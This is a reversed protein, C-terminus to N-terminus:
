KLRQNLHKVLSRMVKTTAHDSGATFPTLENLLLEAEDRTLTIGIRTENCNSCDKAYTRM